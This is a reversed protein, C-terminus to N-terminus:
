LYPVALGTGFGLVTGIMGVVGFMGDIREGTIYQQYDKMDAQIGPNYINGLVAVFNNIYFIVIVIWINDYFPYLLALLVVNALNCWILLNRKGILRILFPAAMMLWLAGNGIVTQAVGLLEEQKPHGYVFTWNLIVSYASKRM